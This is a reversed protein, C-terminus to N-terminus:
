DLFEAIVKGGKWNVEGQRHRACALLPTLDVVEPLEPHSLIYDRFSEPRIKAGEAL